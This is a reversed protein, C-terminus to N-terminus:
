RLLSAVPLYCSGTDNAHRKKMKLAEDLPLRGELIAMLDQGDLTIFSTSENYCDIFTSKFGNISVFLGLANKGRRKVKAAFIDGDGRSSQQERWRAEVIFDDTEHTFSGDVQDYEINYALRPELDYLSFLDHLLQEFKYGRAQASSKDAHLALFQAKIGDLDDSFKRLKEQQKAERERAERIKEIELLDKRYGETFTKLHAVASRAAQLKADRDKEAPLREIDPFREMQSVELMLGLTVNHYKVEQRLLRDVLLDAAARKTDTTFDIGTLLEAHDRLATDLFRRLAPKYWTIVPLADRLAQYAHTSIRKSM